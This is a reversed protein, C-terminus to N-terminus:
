LPRYEAWGTACLHQLTEGMLEVLRMLRDREDVAGVVLCDLTAQQRTGPVPASELGIQPEDLLYARIAENSLLARVADSDSGTARFAADFAADGSPSALPSLGGSAADLFLGARYVTFSLRRTAAYRAQLRAALMRRTAGAEADLWISVRWPGLPVLVAEKNWFDGPRYQAGIEAAFARWREERGPGIGDTM